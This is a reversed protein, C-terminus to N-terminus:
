SVVDINFEGDETRLVLGANDTLVGADRYSRIGVRGSGWIQELAEAREEESCEPNLVIQLASAIDHDTM